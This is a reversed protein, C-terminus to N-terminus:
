QLAEQFKKRETIDRVFNTEKVLLGKEDWEFHTAQEVWVKQGNKKQVLFEISMDTRKEKKWQNYTAIINDRHEEAVLRFSSKHLLEEESYGAIIILGPNCYTFLSRSDAEYYAQRLNEVISRYREESARLEKEMQKRESIDRVVSVLYDRDLSVYKINVEVPFLTGDKRKHMSQIIRYGANRMEEAGAYSTPTVNPDVDYVTLSLLEERTYGLDSCAKENVDLYHLSVPDIVEIADNSNDILTRFLKLADESRQHDHVDLHQTAETINSTLTPSKKM